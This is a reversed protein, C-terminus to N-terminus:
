VQADKMLLKMEFVVSEVYNDLGMNAAHQAFKCRECLTGLVLQNGNLVELM